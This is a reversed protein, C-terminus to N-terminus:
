PSYLGHPWLSDSVVSCSESESRPYIVTDWRAERRLKRGQLHFFIIGAWEVEYLQILFYIAISM